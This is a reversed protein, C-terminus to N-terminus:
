VLKTSKTLLDTLPATVTAYNPIFRRYWGSMGLFRRLQKTSTPIPFTTIGAVKEPDVKICGEGIIHGLYKLERLVFKSKSINITLNAERLWLSVLRLLGLHEALTSSTILLDDLYVFIQDHYRYPVVKHMLRCMTQPANCLGFPMVKFRYLPRGPVAFATKNKADDDLPIQWFADKLDISSIYKTNELRSLLGNILPLPFADKETVENVKRADLCLRVKGNPKKVLTVPSSWSTDESEEIVDLTLMRDLEDFLHKEVARSIPYHRQKVPIADGTKISHYILNTRGLGLNESSPFTDIIGQLEKRQSDSLSHQM